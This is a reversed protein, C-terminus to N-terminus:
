VYEYVTHVTYSQHRMLRIYWYATNWNRRQLRTLTQCHLCDTINSLCITTSFKADLQKTKLLFSTQWWCSIGVLELFPPCILRGASFLTISVSTSVSVSVRSNREDSGWRCVRTENMVAECVSELGTWWQRWVHFLSTWCFNLHFDCRTVALDM